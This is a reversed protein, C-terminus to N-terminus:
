YIIKNNISQYRDDPSLEKWKLFADEGFHPILKGVKQHTYESPRYLILTPEIIELLAMNSFSIHQNTSPLTEYPMVAIYGRYFDDGENIIPFQMIAHFLGGKGVISIKEMLTQLQDYTPGFHIPGGMNDPLPVLLTDYWDSNRSDELLIDVFPATVSVGINDIESGVSKGADEVLEMIKEAAGSATGELLNHFENSMDLAWYTEEIPKNNHAIKWAKAASKVDKMGQNTYEFQGKFDRFRFENTQKIIAADAVMNRQQIGAVSEYGADSAFYGFVSALIEYAVNMAMHQSSVM